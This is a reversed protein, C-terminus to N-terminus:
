YDIDSPRGRVERRKWSFNLSLMVSSDCDLRQSGYAWCAAFEQSYRRVEAKRRKEGELGGNLRVRIVDEVM